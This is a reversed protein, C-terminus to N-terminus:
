EYYETKLDIDSYEIGKRMYIILGRGTNGQLNVDVIDYEDIVYEAILRAFRLHKPRVEQLVIVQPLDEM